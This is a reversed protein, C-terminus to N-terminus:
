GAQGIAITHKVVLNHMKESEPESLVLSRDAFIVLASLSEAMALNSTYRIHNKWSTICTSLCAETTIIGISFMEGLYRSSAVYIRDWTPNTHTHQSMLIM